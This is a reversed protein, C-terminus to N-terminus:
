MSDDLVSNKFLLQALESFGDFESAQTVYQPFHLMKDQYHLVNAVGVSISFKAPDFM